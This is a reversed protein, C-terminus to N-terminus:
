GLKLRDEQRPQRLPPVTFSWRRQEEEPWPSRAGATMLSARNASHRDDPRGDPGRRREADVPRASTQVSNAAVLAADVPPRAQVPELDRSEETVPSRPASGRDSSSDDIEDEGVGTRESRFELSRSLARPRARASPDSPADVLLDVRVV